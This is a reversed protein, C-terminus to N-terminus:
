SQFYKGDTKKKQKKKKRTKKKKKKKKKKENDYGINCDINLCLFVRRFSLRVEEKTKNSIFKNIYSLEAESIRRHKVPRDAVILQWGVIFM